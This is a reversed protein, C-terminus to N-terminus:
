KDHQPTKRTCQAQKSQDTAQQQSLVQQQRSESDNQERAGQARSAEGAATWSVANSESGGSLIERDGIDKFDQKPITIHYKYSRPLLKWYKM